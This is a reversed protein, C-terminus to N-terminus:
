NLRQTACHNTCPATSGPIPTRNEGRLSQTYPPLKTLRDAKPAPSKPEFGFVSM